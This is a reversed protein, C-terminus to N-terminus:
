LKKPPELSFSPCGKSPFRLLQGMSRSPPTKRLVSTSNESGLEAVWNGLSSKEWIRAQKLEEILNGYMRIDLAPILRDIFAIVAKSARIENEIRFSQRLNESRGPQMASLKAIESGRTNLSYVNGYIERALALLLRALPDPRSVSFGSRRGSAMIQDWFISVVYPGGKGAVVGPGSTRHGPYYNFLLESNREWIDIPKNQSSELVGIILDPKDQAGVLEELKISRPSHLLILGMASTLTNTMFNSSSNPTVIMNIIEYSIKTQRRQALDIVNESAQVPSNLAVLLFLFFMSSHIKSWRYDM